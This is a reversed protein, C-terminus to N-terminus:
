DASKEVAKEASQITDAVKADPAKAAAAKMAKEAKAKGSTMFFEKKQMFLERKQEPTLSTFYEKPVSKMMMGVQSKQEPTLAVSKFAKKLSTGNAIAEELQTQQDPTLIKELEPVIKAKLETYPDVTAAPADASLMPAAQAVPMIAFSAVLMVCAFMSMLMRKM